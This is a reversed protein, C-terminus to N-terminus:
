GQGQGSVRVRVRVRVRIRVRVRVRVLDHAPQAPRRWLPVVLLAHAGRGVAHPEDRALQPATCAGGSDYERALLLGAIVAAAAATAAAAAAITAAATTTTTNTPQLHSCAHRGHAEPRAARVIINFPSSPDVVQNRLFERCKGIRGCRGKDDFVAGKSTQWKRMANRRDNRRAVKFSDTPNVPVAGPPREDGPPLKDDSFPRVRTADPTSPEAPAVNSLKSPIAFGFKKKRTTQGSSGSPTTEM